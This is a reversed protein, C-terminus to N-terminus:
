FVTFCFEYNCDKYNAQYRGSGEASECTEEDNAESDLFGSLKVVIPYVISVLKEIYDYEEDGSSYESAGLIDGTVYDQGTLYDFVVTESPAVTQDANPDYFINEEGVTGGISVTDLNDRIYTPYKNRIIFELALLVNTQLDQVGNGTYINTVTNGRNVSISKISYDNQSPM